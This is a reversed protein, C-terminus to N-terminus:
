MFSTIGFALKSMVDTILPYAPDTDVTTFLLGFAAAVLDLTGQPDRMTTGPVNWAIVVDIPRYQDELDTISTVEWSRLRISFRAVPKGSDSGLNLNVDLTVPHEEDGAAYVYVSKVGTKTVDSSILSFTAVDLQNIDLAKDTGTPVFVAYTTTM